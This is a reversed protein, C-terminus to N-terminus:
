VEGKKTGGDGGLGSTGREKGRKKVKHGSLVGEMQIIHKMEEGKNVSM